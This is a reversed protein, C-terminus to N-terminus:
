IYPNLKVNSLIQIYFMLHLSQLHACNDICTFLASHAYDNVDDIWTAALCTILGMVHYLSTGHLLSQLVFDPLLISSINDVHLRYM